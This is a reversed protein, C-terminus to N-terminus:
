RENTRRCRSRQARGPPLGRTRPTFGQENLLVDALADDIGFRRDCREHFGAACDDNVAADDIRAVELVDLTTIAGAATTFVAAVHVIRARVERTATLGVDRDREVHACGVTAGDIRTSELVAAGVDDEAVLACGGNM